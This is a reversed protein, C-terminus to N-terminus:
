NGGYVLQCLYDGSSNQGILTPNWGHKLTIKSLTDFDVHLWGFEPGVVDKYKLQFQIEGVYAGARIQTQLYKLHVNKQTRRVDLSDGIIQGGPAIIKSVQKLLKGLGDLDAVIGLGHDLMLVTDFKGENYEFINAHKVNRVGREKM